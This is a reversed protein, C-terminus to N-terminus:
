IQHFIFFGSNEKEIGTEFGGSRIYKDALLLIILCLICILIWLLWKKM